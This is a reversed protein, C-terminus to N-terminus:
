SLLRWQTYDTPWEATGQGTTPFPYPALVLTGKYPDSEQVDISGHDATYTGITDGTVFDKAIFKITDADINGEPFVHAGIYVLQDLAEAEISYAASPTVDVSPNM